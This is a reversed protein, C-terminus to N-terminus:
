VAVVVVVVVVLWFAVVRVMLRVWLWCLMMGRRRGSGGWLM